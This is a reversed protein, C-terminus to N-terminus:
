LASCCCLLWSMLEGHSVAEWIFKANNALNQLMAFFLVAVWAPDHHM